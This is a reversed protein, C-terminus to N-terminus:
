SVGDDGLRGGGPGAGLSGLRVKGLGTRPLSGVILLERPARHRGLVAGVRDRLEALTPPADPDRPVVAAVVRRGWTADHRGFVACDAVGPHGRLCAEVDGPWIKEGGSVILDDLRGRVRLRGRDDIWGADGTRLWGDATFDSQEPTSKGGADGDRYGRMLTPGGLEVEGADSTRVSVGPLPLGDYIVGGCSQTLGYTVVCRAGAAKARRALGDEMGGGGVVIAAYGGLDTGADLTRALLTPVVAIFRVGAPPLLDDSQRFVLPSGALLSRLVVLLGGIHALPLCSVWGDAEDAELAALSASVAAEVAHRTLEVLRPRASSGSTPIILGISADASRGGPLRHWGSASILVTPEARSVLDQAAAEPLRHDVPLLAAEGAWASEAIGRWAEGPPLRVAVVDGRRLRLPVAEIM